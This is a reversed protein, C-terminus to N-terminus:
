PAAQMESCGQQMCVVPGPGTPQATVVRWLQAHARVYVSCGGGTFLLHSPAMCARHPVTCLSCAPSSSPRHLTHPHRARGGCAHRWALGHFCGLVQIIMKHLKEEHSEMECNQKVQMVTINEKHGLSIVEDFAFILDFANRSM